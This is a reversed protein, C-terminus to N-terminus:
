VGMWGMNVYCRPRLRPRQLRPHRAAHERGAEGAGLFFVCFVTKYLNCMVYYLQGYTHQFNYMYIWSKLFKQQQRADLLMVAGRKM